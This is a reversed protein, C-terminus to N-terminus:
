KYFILEVPGMLGAKQLPSDASYYSWTSRTFPRETQQDGILRNIWRNTISIELTNAGKKLLGSLDASYPKTWIVPLSRDNIKVEALDAMDGLQLICRAPILSDALLFSTKYSATGSYYKIAPEPFDSWSRLEHISMSRPAGRGDLFSLDWGAQLSLTYIPREPAQPKIDRDKALMADHSDLKKRFVVCISGHPPFTYYFSTRENRLSFATVSAMKGSVPDWIEPQAATIRMSILADVTADQQNSVFYIDAEATRRHIYRLSDTPIWQFDPPINNKELAAPIDMYRVAHRGWLATKIADFEERDKKDALFGSSGYPAPGVVTGGAEVLEKLHRLVKLQIFGNEPMVLLRYRQGQPLFFWGDRYNMKLLDEPSCVDYDYGHMAETLDKGPQERSLHELDDHRILCIDAVFNGQQLLFQIRSLYSIWEPAYKWWTNLRGFHSGYRGLTYGPARDDPQHVYSHLVNLNVGNTFALDGTSKLYEPDDLYASFPPLATFAEAGAILKGKTHAAASFQKVNDEGFHMWYEGMPVDLYDSVKFPDFFGGYPEAYLKMGYKHALDRTTGYFNKALLDGITHRYDWLVAATLERSGVIRGTLVPLYPALSYGHQKQFETLLDRSWNQLGAEYSDIMIGDFPKGTASVALDILKRNAKEFHWAVAAADLKDVELGTAEPPAPHNTAGSSTYGIRLITWDGPPVKWSLQGDEGTLATLDVIDKLGIAGPEAADVADTATVDAVGAANGSHDRNINSSNIGIQADANELRHEDSLVVEELETKMPVGRYASALYIRFALATTKSFPLSFATHAVRGYFDINRLVTYNRGDTSYEIRGNLTYIHAGSRLDLTLLSATVPNAFSLQLYAKGDSAPLSVSTKANGDTLNGLLLSDANGSYSVRALSALPLVTSRDSPVAIVAIQRYYDLKTAPQALRVLQPADGKGKVETESWTLVKMSRAVDIWPGGSTAWGPCNTNILDIGLSDCLRMALRVHDYWLGSGYRAPGEPVALAANFLMVGAIGARKMDLLDKRIGEDTVNGNMWHWFVLPRATKPPHLFGQELGSDNQSWGMFPIYILLLPILFRMTM